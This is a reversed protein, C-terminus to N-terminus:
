KDFVETRHYLLFNKHRQEIKRISMSSNVGLKDLDERSIKSSIKIQRNDEFTILGRDFLADLNPILLLGNFHNLRERNNSDKWPQIHSARLLQKDNVKTVSCSNGWYKLLKNRFLGQGMRASICRGKQTEISKVNENEHFIKNQPKEYEKMVALFYSADVYKRNEGKYCKARKAGTNYFDLYGRKGIGNGIESEFYVKRPEESVEPTFCIYKTHVSVTFFEGKTLTKLRLHDSGFYNNAFSIFQEKTVMTKM